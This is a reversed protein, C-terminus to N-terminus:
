CYVRKILSFYGLFILRGSFLYNFRCIYVKGREIRRIYDRIKNTVFSNGRVNYDIEVVEMREFEPLITRKLLFRGWLAKELLLNHGSYKGHESFFVKRHSLRRLSPLGTLMDVYYEGSFESLEPAQAHIFMKRLERSNNPFNM